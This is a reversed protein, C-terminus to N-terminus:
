TMRVAHVGSATGKHLGRVMEVGFLLIGYCIVAFRTLFHSMPLTHPRQPPIGALMKCVAAVPDLAAMVALIRGKLRVLQHLAVQGEIEVEAAQVGLYQFVPQVQVGRRYDVALKLLM